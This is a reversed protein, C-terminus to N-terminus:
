QDVCHRQSSDPRLAHRMGHSGRSAGRTFWMVCGTHVVHRVGHSGCSAGQTFWTVCGTHVVHRMGHSGRSGHSAGRTLWTVCGTHVVHRVGHSGRGQKVHQARQQLWLEECWEGTQSSHVTTRAAMIVVLPQQEFDFESLNQIWHVLFM